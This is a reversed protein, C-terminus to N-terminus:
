NTRNCSSGVSHDLYSTVNVGVCSVGKFSNQVVKDCMGRESIGEVGSESTRWYVRDVRNQCVSLGVMECMKECVRLVCKVWERM